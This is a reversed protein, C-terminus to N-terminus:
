LTVQFIYRNFFQDGSGFAIARHVVLEADYVAYDNVSPAEVVGVACRYPLVLIVDYDLTLVHCFGKLLLELLNPLPV